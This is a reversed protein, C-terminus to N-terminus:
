IPERPYGAITELTVYKGIDKYSLVVTIHINIFTRQVSKVITYYVSYSQYHHYAM